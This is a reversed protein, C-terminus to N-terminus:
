INKGPLDSRNKRTEWYVRGSKSIRKGPPLAKRERDAKVSARKGTQYNVVKLVKPKKLKTKRTRRKKTKIGLIEDIEPIKLPKLKLPQPYMIIIEIIKNLYKKNCM